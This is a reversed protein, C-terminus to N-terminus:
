SQEAARNIILWGNLHEIVENATWIGQADCSEMFLLYGKGMQSTPNKVASTQWSRVVRLTSNPGSRSKTKFFNHKALRKELMSAAAQSTVGNSILVKFAGAISGQLSSRLSGTGPRAKGSDVRLFAAVHGEKLDGLAMYLHNLPWLDTRTDQMLVTLFKLAVHLQLQIGSLGKDSGERFLTAAENLEEHLMVRVKRYPDLKEAM